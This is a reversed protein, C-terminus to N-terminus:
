ESFLAGLTVGPEDTPTADTVSIQIKMKGNWYEWVRIRQGASKEDGITKGLALIRILSESVLPAPAYPNTVACASVKRGRDKGETIGLLFPTPAVGEVIWSRSRADKDAPAMMSAADGTMERWGALRAGAEIKDLRPLVQVCSGLFAKALGDAREDAVSHQSALVLFILALALRM